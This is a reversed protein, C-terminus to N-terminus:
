KREGLDEALCENILRRLVWSRNVNLEVGVGGADKSDLAEGKSRAVAKDLSKLQPTTLFVTIKHLPESPRAETETM